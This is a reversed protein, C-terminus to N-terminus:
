KKVGKKGGTMKGSGKGKTNRGKGGGRGDKPGKSNKPPGSKDFKPMVNEKRDNIAM